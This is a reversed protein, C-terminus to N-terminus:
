FLEKLNKAENALQELARDLLSAEAFCNRIPIADPIKETKKSKTMRHVSIKM